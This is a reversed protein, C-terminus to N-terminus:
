SKIKVVIQRTRPGDLEVLFIQQWRGRIIKGNEIILTKDTGLLGSLLHAKANIDIQNHAFKQDKILQKLFSLWDKRLRNENETLIIAATSHPTFILCLGDSVHSEEILKEVEKTVDLLQYKETTNFSLKKIL